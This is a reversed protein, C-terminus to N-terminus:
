YATPQRYALLLTKLVIRLDLWISWHNIYWLDYEVRQAMLGVTQTQGRFGNVQAWGTIGPKVHHRFAYNSVINQYENNHAVAHPRPGVISMDGFLVNLLQPLEDISTQRLWRGLRTVRPDDRTAQQIRDGDELVRMTRFKYISFTSGNFGNRKQRFLIPGTSDLKILLATILMLPALLVFMATAVVLDFGRKLRRETRTLPARQLEVTYTTGINGTRAKLFTAVNEDPLLHVPIPLARLMRILNNILQPRDWKLLLFVYDAAQIQSASIIDQIKQNLSKTVGTAEAEAETLEFIRIPLYGCQCLEALAHSTSQQGRETILVVKQRAFAGDELSQRLHRAVAFRFTLLSAWGILFFSLTSGRSFNTAIKLSFAVATLALFIFLWNLTVYRIQRGLNILNTARYNQQANTLAFFNVFVMGGLALYTEISGDTGLFLLQYGIGSLLGAFLIVILDGTLVAPEILHFPLQLRHSPPVTESAVMQSPHVVAAEINRDPRSLM